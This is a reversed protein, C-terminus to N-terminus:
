VSMKGETVDLRKLGYKWEHMESTMQSSKM